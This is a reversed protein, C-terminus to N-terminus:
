RFLATAKFLTQIVGWVLPLGVVLWALILPGASRSPQHPPQYAPPPTM